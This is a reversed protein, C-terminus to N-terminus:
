TRGAFFIWGSLGTLVQARRLTHALVMFNTREQVLAAIKSIAIRPVFIVGSGTTIQLRNPVVSPDYGLQMLRSQNVLTSTAGTDLALSLIGKGSAGWLEARVVILGQHPNFAFSV